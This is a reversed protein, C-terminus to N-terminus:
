IGATKSVEVIFKSKETDSLNIKTKRIKPSFRMWVKQNQQSVLLQLCPHSRDQQQTPVHSAQLKPSKWNSKTHLKCSWTQKIPSVLQRARQNHTNVSEPGHTLSTFMQTSMATLVASLSLYWSPITSKKSPTSSPLVSQLGPLHCLRM